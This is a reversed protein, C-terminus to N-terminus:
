KGAAKQRLREDVSATWLRYVLEFLEKTQGPNNKYDVRGEMTTATLKPDQEYAFFGLSKGPIEIRCAAREGPTTLPSRTWWATGMSRSVSRVEAIPIHFVDKEDDSRYDIAEATVTLIGSCASGAAHQHIAYYRVPFKPLDVPVAKMLVFVRATAGSQVQVQEEYDKYGPKTLTLQHAGTPVPTLTLPTKGVSKGDLFVEVESVDTKVRLSGDDAAALWVLLAILLHALM